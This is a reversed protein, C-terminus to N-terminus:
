HTLRLIWVDKQMLAFSNELVPTEFKIIGFLIFRNRFVGKRFYLHHM